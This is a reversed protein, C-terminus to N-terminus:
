RESPVHRGHRVAGDFRQHLVDHGNVVIDGPLVEVGASQLKASKPETIFSIVKRDLKHSVTVVQPLTSRFRQMWLRDFRIKTIETDFNGKTTPLVEIDAVGQVAMQASFPDSFRNVASWPM